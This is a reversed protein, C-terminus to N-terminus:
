TRQILHMSSSPLNLDPVEPAGGVFTMRLGFGLRLRDRPFDRVPLSFRPIRRASARSSSLGGVSVASAPRGAHKKGALIGRANATATPPPSNGQQPGRAWADSTTESASGFISKGRMTSSKHRWGARMCKAAIRANVLSGAMACYSGCFGSASRACIRARRAGFAVLDRVAEHWTPFGSGKLESAQFLVSPQM